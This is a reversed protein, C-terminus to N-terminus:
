KLLRIIIKVWAPKLLHVFETELSAIDVWEHETHVRAVVRLYEVIQM